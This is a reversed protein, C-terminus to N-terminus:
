DMKIISENIKDTIMQAAKVAEVAAEIDVEPKIDNVISNFFKNLEYKMPNVTSVTKNEYLIKIRKKDYEFPGIIFANPKVNTDNENLMSFLESQNKMFDISIYANKQFIRMKRMKKQSIRSATLNAVCGNKFKIRANAIDIKDTIIAVGNAEISEIKSKILNLIIDIDHIMIDQIVSVDTGRPNFESLRHSEIFLPNINIEELALLAPNYREIHGVQIKVNKSNAYELLEFADSVKDTVPKEIFTNINKKIAMKSIEYHTTTPTVIIVTNINNLLEELSNFVRLYYESKIKDTKKSNIDYVGIVEIDNREKQLEILNKIHFNGLHGCGAIGIKIKNQIM